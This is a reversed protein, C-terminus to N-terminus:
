IRHEGLNRAPDPPDFVCTLAVKGGFYSRGPNFGQVVM